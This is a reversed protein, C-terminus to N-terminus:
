DWILAARLGHPHRNKLALRAGHAQALNHAIALGLGSGGTEGLARNRSSDERWYPQTACALLHDPIGPGDDNVALTVHHTDGCLEEGLEVSVHDGYKLANNILNQLIRSIARPRLMMPRELRGQVLIPVGQHLDSVEDVVSQVLDNLDVSVKDERVSQSSAYALGDEVLATMADVDHEMRERLAGWDLPDEMASLRLKLRTLPTKLDHSIAALMRLRDELQRHIEAHLRQLAHEVIVVEKLGSVSSVAATPPEHVHDAIWQASRTFTALPRLALRTAYAALAVGMLVVVLVYFVVGWWPPRTSMWPSEFVLALARQQDVPWALGVHQGDHLFVRPEGAQPYAASVAKILPQFTDGGISQSPSPWTTLVMLRYDGRHWQPSDSATAGHAELSSLHRLAFAVDHAILQDRLSRGEVGRAWGVAGFSLVQIGLTCAVLILTVRGAISGWVKRARM